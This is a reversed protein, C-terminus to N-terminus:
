LGFFFSFCLRKCGLWHVLAPLSSVQTSLDLGTQIDTVNYSGGAYETMWLPKDANSALTQLPIAAAAELVEACDVIVQNACILISCLDQLWWSSSLRVFALRLLKYRLMDLHDHVSAQM